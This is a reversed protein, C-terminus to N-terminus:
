NGIFNYSNRARTISSDDLEADGVLSRIADAAIYKDKLWQKGKEIFILKKLIASKWQAKDKTAKKEDAYWHRLKKVYDALKEREAFISLEKTFYKNAWQESTFEYHLGLEPNDEMEGYNAKTDEGKNKKLEEKKEKLWELVEINAIFQDFKDLERELAEFSPKPSEIIDRNITQLKPTALELFKYKDGMAEEWLIGWTNVRELEDNFNNIGERLEQLINESEDLKDNWINKKYEVIHCVKMEGGTLKEWIEKHKKYRRYEITSLNALQKVIIELISIEYQVFEFIDIEETKNNENITNNLKEYGKLQEDWYEHEVFYSRCRMWKSGISWLSTTVKGSVVTKLNNVSDLFAKRCNVFQDYFESFFDDYNLYLNYFYGMEFKSLKTIADFGEVVMNYSDRYTRAYFPRGGEMTGYISENINIILEESDDDKINLKNCRETYQNLSTTFEEVDECVRKLNNSLEIKETELQRGM